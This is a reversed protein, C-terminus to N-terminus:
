DVTIFWKRIRRGAQKHFPEYRKNIKDRIRDHIDYGMTDLVYGLRKLLRESGMLLAYEVLKNVHEQGNKGLLNSLADTVYHVPALDPIYLMDIIAKEPEAVIVGQESVYGFIRSASTKVFRIEYMGDPTKINFIHSKRSNFVTIRSPMQDALGHLYLAGIATVYSPNYLSSAVAWIDSGSVAYVGRLICYISGSKSLRHLYLSTYAQNKKLLASAESVTFTVINLRKLEMLFENSKM